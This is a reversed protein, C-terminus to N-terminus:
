TLQNDKMKKSKIFVLGGIVFGFIILLFGPLKKKYNIVRDRSLGDLEMDLNAKEANLRDVKYSIKLYQKSRGNKNYEATQKTKLDKLSTNIENSRKNIENVRVQDKKTYILENNNKIMNIGIILTIVIVSISIIYGIKKTNM